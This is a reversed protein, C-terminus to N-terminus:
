RFRIAQPVYIHFGIGSAPIDTTSDVKVVKVYSFFRKNLYSGPKATGGRCLVRRFAKLLERGEWGSSRRLNSPVSQWLASGEDPLLAVNEDLGSLASPTGPTTM